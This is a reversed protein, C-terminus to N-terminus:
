IFTMLRYNDIPLYITSALNFVLHKRVFVKISDKLEM